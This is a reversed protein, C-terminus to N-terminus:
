LYLTVMYDVLLCAEKFGHLRSHIKILISNPRVFIRLYYM